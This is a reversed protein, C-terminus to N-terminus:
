ILNTILEKPVYFIVLALIYLIVLFAIWIYKLIKNDESFITIAFFLFLVLSVIFAMYTFSLSPLFFDLKFGLWVFFYNLFFVLSFTILTVKSASYRMKLKKNSLLIKDKFQTLLKM